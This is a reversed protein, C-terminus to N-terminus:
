SKLQNAIKEFSAAVEEADPIDSFAIAPLEKMYTTKLNAWLASFDSLLPSQEIDMTNWGKPNDFTAQLYMLM